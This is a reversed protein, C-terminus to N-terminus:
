ASLFKYNKWLLQIDHWFTYNAAYWTDASLLSEEPLTNMFDPVGTVTLVGPNLYPLDKCAKAYGVWTKHKFFVESTNRFFRGPSKQLLLHVPFSIMFFLSIIRDARQKNRRIVLNGLKFNSYPTVYKGAINKSESGIISESCLAHFMRKVHRPMIKTLEILKKFSLEGECLIIEKVPYMNILQIVQEINGIANIEDGGKVAVRGLIKEEMGYRQMTEYVWTYEKHAGAIITYGQGDSKDSELIKFNVLVERQLAILGYAMLSGFLLIGRSFRLSEPLLSYGALLVVIAAIAARNLRSPKYGNDYLGSFYSAALFILTFIPFAIILMNPSYDVKQKVYTNWFLKVMWFSLLIAAADFVPMGIWRIFRRTGSVVARFLIASQMFFNLIGAKSGGYHKEVFISMAKYFMRVYNIGGKKTSEGKFHIITTEAFYFNKYGAKQIRFSLDIDEGYMFFSEDFGGLSKIIKEPAMIFAGALVDVENNQKEDLHGLYYKSFTKSRPFLKTLGSLKYLSTIPSPFSRKSEKLFKGSGDIMQVGLAGADPHLELFSICKTFCDEPVITDPNLFLIYKGASLSLAENNAKAFGYNKENWLFKVAKFKERFFMKSDDSSNNDVVFIEAEINLTAKIVSCLCQELFFKM